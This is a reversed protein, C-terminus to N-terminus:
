RGRGGTPQSELGRLLRLLDQLTATGEVTRTSAVRATDAVRIVEVISGEVRGTGSLGATQWLQTFTGALEGTRPMTVRWTVDIANGGSANATASMSLSGDAAITSTFTSFELIGLVFRGSVTDASQALGFFVPASRGLQTSISGCFDLSAFDGTPTCGTM